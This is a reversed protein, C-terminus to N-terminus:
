VDGNELPARGWQDLGYVVGTGVAFMLALRFLGQEAVAAAVAGATATAAAAIAASRATAALAQGARLEGDRSRQLNAAAAASGGIVGGLLAMRLLNSCAMDASQTHTQAPYVAAVPYAMAMPYTPDNPHNSM